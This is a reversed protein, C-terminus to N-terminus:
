TTILKFRNPKDKASEKTQLARLTQENPNNGSRAQSMIFDSVDQM